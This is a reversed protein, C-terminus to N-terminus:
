ECARDRKGRLLILGASGIGLLTLWLGAMDGTEPIESKPTDASPPSFPMQEEPDSQAPTDPREEETAPPTEDRDDDEEPTDEDDTPVDETGSPERFVQVGFDSWTREETVVSETVEFSLNVQMSVDVAKYGEAIGVFTQSPVDNKVESTYIYV